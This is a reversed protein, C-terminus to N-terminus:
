WELGGKVFKGLIQNINGRPIKAPAFDKLEALKQELNGPNWAVLGLKKQEVVEALELQHDNTHELFEKRRPICAFKKGMSKAMGINGEGAHTIFLDCGALLENFEGIPVFKEWRFNKPEYNNHGAQCFVKGVIKKQAILLDIEKLLRDFQQPHTGVSVFVFSKKGGPKKQRVIKKNKQATM